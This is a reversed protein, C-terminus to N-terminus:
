KKAEYKIEKSIQFEANHLAGIAFEIIRSDNGWIDLTRKASQILELAELLKKERVNEPTKIRSDTYGRMSELEKDDEIKKNGKAPGRKSIRGCKAGAIRAREYGTLGDRGVSMSAFGGTHGNRGGTRGLNKYFDKGYKAKNTRAAKRGGAVTGAM